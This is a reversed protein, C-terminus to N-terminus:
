IYFGTSTIEKLLNMEETTIGNFNDTWLTGEDIETYGNLSQLKLTINATYGKYGGMNRPNLIIPRELIMYAHQKGIFGHSGQNNGSTQVSVKQNMVSNAIQGVGSFNGAVASGLGGIAGLMSSFLGKWDTGTIPVQDFVNGQYEYIVDNLRADGKSNRPSRSCKLQAVCTGSLLDVQYKLQVDSGIVDDPNLEVTSVYPLHCRIKSNPQYDLFTQTDGDIHVTGFDLTHFQKILPATIGTSIGAYKIVNSVSSSPTFHVMSVFLIYDIPDAILRKLQSSIADTIDTFLFDNLAKINAVTPNYLAVFGSTVADTTIGSADEFGEDGTGTPYDGSGGGTGNWGGESNPDDTLDEDEDAIANGFPNGSLQLFLDPDLPYSIIATSVQVNAIERWIRAPISQGLITIYENDGFLTGLDNTWYLEGFLIESINDPIIDRYCPSNGGEQQTGILGGTHFMRLYYEDSTTSVYDFMFCVNGCLETGVQNERIHYEYKTPDNVSQYFGYLCGIIITDDTNEIKRIYVGGDEFSGWLFYMSDILQQKYARYLDSEIEEQTRWNFVYNWAETQAVPRNKLQKIYYKLSLTTPTTTSGEALVYWLDGAFRYNDYTCFQVLKGDNFEVLNERIAM